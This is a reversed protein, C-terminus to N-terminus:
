FEDPHEILYGLAIKEWNETKKDDTGLDFYGKDRDRIGICLQPAKKGDEKILDMYESLFKYSAKSKPSVNARVNMEYSVLTYNNYRGPPIVHEVRFYGKKCFNKEKCRNGFLPIDSLKPFTSETTEAQKVFAM